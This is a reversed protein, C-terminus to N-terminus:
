EAPSATTIESRQKRPRGVPRKTVALEGTQQPRNVRGFHAGASLREEDQLVSDFEVITKRGDKFTRWRGDRVKKHEQWRGHRAYSCAEDFTAYKPCFDPPLPLYKYPSPKPM